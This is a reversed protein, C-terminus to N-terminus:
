DTHKGPERRRRWLDRAILFVVLVIVGGFLIFHVAHEGFLSHDHHMSDMGEHSDDAVAEGAEAVPLDYRLTFPALGEALPAGSVTLTYEGKGPFTHYFDLETAAVYRFDDSPVTSSANDSDTFSITFEYDHQLQLPVQSDRFQLFFKVPVGAPPTHGLDTYMLAGIAGDEKFVHASAALPSSVAAVVFLAPLFLM